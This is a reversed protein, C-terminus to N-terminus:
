AAGPHYNTSFTIKNKHFVLIQKSHRWFGEAQKCSTCFYVSGLPGAWGQGTWQDVWMVEPGRGPLGGEVMDGVHAQWLMRPFKSRSAAVPGTFTPLLGPGGVEGKRRWEEEGEEEGGGNQVDLGLMLSKQM